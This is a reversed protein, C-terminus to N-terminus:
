NCFARAAQVYAAYRELFRSRAARDSAQMDELREPKSFFSAALKQDRASLTLNAAQQICGCLARSRAERDSRLCAREIQQAQALPATAAWLALALITSKM